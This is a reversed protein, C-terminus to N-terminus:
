GWYISRKTGDNVDNNFASEEGDVAVAAADYDNKYVFVVFVVVDIVRAYGCNGCRLRCDDGTTYYITTNRMGARRWRFSIFFASILTQSSKM